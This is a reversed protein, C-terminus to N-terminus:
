GTRVAVNLLMLSMELAQLRDDLVVANRCRRLMKGMDGRRSQSRAMSLILEGMGAKCDEQVYVKPPTRNYTSPKSSERARVQGGQQAALAELKILNLVNELDSEGTRHEKSAQM